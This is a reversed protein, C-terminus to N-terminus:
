DSAQARRSGLLVGSDRMQRLLANGQEVFATVDSADAERALAVLQARGSLTPLEGFRELLRFALPSLESFRVDGTSGDPKLERRLMLLTPSDPPVTPAYDPGLRHVPWRYAFAWALPSLVPAGDLLDGRPDHDVDAVSDESIQLALEVWEYHALEALFAPDLDVREARGQLFQVFERAIEPFLPTQCRHDRQFARVLGPWGDDGLLKRIVPFNGSLLEDINNILLERYIALRREEIGAPPPQGLPDRLHRTLAFQQERLREPVGACPNAPVDDRVRM